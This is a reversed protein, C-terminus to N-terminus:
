RPASRQGSLFALYTRAAEPTMGTLRAVHREADRDVLPAPAPPQDDPQAM